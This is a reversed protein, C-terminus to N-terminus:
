GSTKEEKVERELKRQHAADRQHGLDQGARAGRQHGEVHGGERKAASQARRKRGQQIAKAKEGDGRPRHSEIRQRQQGQPFQLFALHRHGSSRRAIIIRATKIKHRGYAKEGAM